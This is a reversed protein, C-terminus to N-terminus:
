CSFLLKSVNSFQIAFFWPRLQRMHVPTLQGWYFTTFGESILALKPINTFFSVLTISLIYLQGWHCTKRAEDRRFVSM